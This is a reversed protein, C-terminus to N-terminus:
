IECSLRTRQNTPSARTLLTKKEKKKSAYRIDRLQLILSLLKRQSESEMGVYVCMCVGSQEEVVVVDCWMM